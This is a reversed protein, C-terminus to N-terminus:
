RYHPENFSGFAGLTADWAPRDGLQCSDAVVVFGGPKLVRAWERAAAFRAQPACSLSAPLPTFPTHAGPAEAAERAGQSAPGEHRPPGPPGAPGRPGPPAPPPPPPPPGGGGGGWGVWGGVGGECRGVEEPLEHFLYICVVVDLSEDEVPIAEAACQMFTTGARDPGPGLDSSPQRKAKWEAINDRAAALYYPSLDSAITQPQTLLHLPAPNLPAPHPPAPRNRSPAAGPRSCPQARQDGAGPEVCDPAWVVACDPACYPADASVLGGVQMAPYNDKIFTHFRGTGCAVEILKLSSPDRPPAPCRLHLTPDILTTLHAPTSPPECTQAAWRV